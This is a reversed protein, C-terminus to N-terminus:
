LGKNMIVLTKYSDNRDSNQRIRNKSMCKVLTEFVNVNRQDYKKKNDDPVM